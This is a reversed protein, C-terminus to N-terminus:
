AATTGTVNHLKAVVAINGLGLKRSERKAANISAFEKVRGDSDQIRNSCRKYEPKM